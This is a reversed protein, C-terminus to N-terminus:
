GWEEDRIAAFKRSGIVWRDHDVAAIQHAESERGAGAAGERLAGRDM